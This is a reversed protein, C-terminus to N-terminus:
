PATQTYTLTYAAQAGASGGIVQVLYTGAALPTAPCRTGGPCMVEETDASTKSDDYAIAGDGSLLRLDLDGAGGRNMFTIRATVQQDAAVEIRFNDSEGNGCIAAVHDGPSIDTATGPLDNPEFAQCDADSVPSDPPPGDAPVDFDLILSCGSGVVVTALVTSALISALIPAVAAPPLSRPISRRGEGPAYPM